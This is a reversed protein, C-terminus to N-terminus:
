FDLHRGHTKLWNRHQRYEPMAKEVLAWFSNSHNMEFRHALEHIIVYDCVDPPTLLLKTSLSIAGSTSCSGWRSITYRLSVKNVTANFHQRNLETVRRLMNPYYYKSLGNILLHRIVDRKEAEQHMLKEPLSLKLIHDHTIHLQMRNGSTWHHQIEHPTGLLNILSGHSYKDLARKEYLRKQAITTKAWTLLEELAQQKQAQNMRKPLRILIQKERLSIRASPRNEVYIKVPVPFHQLEEPLSIM